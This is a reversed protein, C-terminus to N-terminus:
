NRHRIWFSQTSFFPVKNLSYDALWGYHSGFAGGAGWAATNTSVDTLDTRGTEPDSKCTAAAQYKVGFNVSYISQHVSYHDGHTYLGCGPYNKNYYTGLINYSPLSTDIGLAARQALTTKIAWTVEDKTLDGDGLDYSVVAGRNQTDLYVDATRPAAYAGSGDTKSLAFGLPSFEGKTGLATWDGPLTADSQSMQSLFGLLSSVRRDACVTTWKPNCYGTQEGKTLVIFVKYNAPSNEVLSWTQWEDDPHPVVVYSVNSPSPNAQAPACGVAMLGLALALTSLTAIIKKM